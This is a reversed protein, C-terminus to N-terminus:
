NEGMDERRTPKAALAEAVDEECSISYSHIKAGQQTTMATIIGTINDNPEFAIVQLKGGKVYLAWLCPTTDEWDGLQAQYLEVAKRAGVMGSCFETSRAVISTIHGIDDTIRM